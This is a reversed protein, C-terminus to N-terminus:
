RRPAAFRERLYAAVMGELEAVVPERAAPEVPARSLTHRVTEVCLAVARRREGEPATTGARVLAEAFLEVLRERVRHAPSDPREPPLDETLRYYGPHDLQLAAARRVLGAGVAGLDTGPRVADLLEAYPTWVDALYREALADVIDDLAPFFRYLAGVSLGARAAISRTGAGTVGVEGIEAEAATLIREVTVRSREQQPARATM